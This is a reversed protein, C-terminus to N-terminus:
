KDNGDKAKKIAFKALNYIRESEEKDAPIGTELWYDVNNVFTELAELLEPAAAMLNANDQTESVFVWEKCYQDEKTDYFNYLYGSEVKMKRFYPYEHVEEIEHLKM